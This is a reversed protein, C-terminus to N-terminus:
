LEEDQKEEDDKKLKSELAQDIFVQIAKKDQNKISAREDEEMMENAYYMSTMDVQMSDIKENLLIKETRHDNRM